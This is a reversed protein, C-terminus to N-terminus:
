RTHGIGASNTSLIKEGNFQWQEKTLILESYRHADIKPRELKHWLYIQRNQWHWLTKIVSTYFLEQLKM